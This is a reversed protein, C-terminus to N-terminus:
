AAPGNAGYRRAREVEETPIAIGQRGAAALFKDIRADRDPGPRPHEEIAAQMYEGFPPPPARFPLSEAAEDTWRRRNLYTAPMPVYQRREPELWGNAAIQRSLRSLLEDIPPRDKLRNWAREAGARDDHRPYHAYWTEFDPDPQARVPPARKV